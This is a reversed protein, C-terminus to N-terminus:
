PPPLEVTLVVPNQEWQRADRFKVQRIYYPATVLDGKKTFSLTGTIGPYDATARIAQAVELRTPVAGDNAKSAEEIAKLCVSAADYAEAAFRTPLKGYELMFNAQFNIAEPSAGSPAGMNVYYMGAGDLALPGALEALDPNPDVALLAGTYGAERLAKFAPSAQWTFGSYLVADPNDGQVVDAAAELNGAEVTARLERIVVLGEQSAQAKFARTVQSSLDGNDTLVDASAYGQALAFKALAAGMADNRGTVRNVELYNRTTVKPNTASPSIFALGATHYLDTVNITVRSSFAGVGCLVKPDAIVARAIDIGKDVDDQDDHNEFEVEFGLDRLPGSKEVVALRAALGVDFGIPAESVIKLTAKPVFPTETPTPTATPMFTATAAPPAPTNTPPAPSRAVAGPACGGGVGAALILILCMGRKMVRGTLM